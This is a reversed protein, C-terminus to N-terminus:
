KVYEKKDDCWAYVSAPEAMPSCRVGKDDYARKCGPCKGTIGDYGAAQRAINKRQKDLYGGYLLDTLEDPSYGTAFMLNMFFHFVDVLESLYGDTNIHRSSAWPKWGTENMAEHLEDSLALINMRIYQIREEDTMNELDHRFTETQMRHQIRFMDNLRDITM